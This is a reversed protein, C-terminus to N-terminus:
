NSWGAVATGIAVSGASLPATAPNAALVDVLILVIGGIRYGWKQIQARRERIQRLDAATQCVERQFSALALKVKTPEFNADLADRFMSASWLIRKTAEYSLGVKRLIQEEPVLFASIFQTLDKKLATRKAVTDRSMGQLKELNSL